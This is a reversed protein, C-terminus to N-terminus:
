SCLGAPVSKDYLNATFRNGSGSKDWYIDPKNRGFRNASVTNKNPKATVGFYPDKAVVVGGSIPTPGSPVNGWLRNTSVEM